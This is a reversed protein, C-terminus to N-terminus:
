PSRIARVAAFSFYPLDEGTRPPPAFAGPPAAVPSTAQPQGEVMRQISM